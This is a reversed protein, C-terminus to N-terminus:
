SHRELSQHNEDGNGNNANGNKAVAVRHYTEFMLPVVAEPSFM